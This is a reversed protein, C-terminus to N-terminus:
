RAVVRRSAAVGLLMGAVGLFAVPLSTVEAAFGILAPGTLIGSFGMTSVAAVALNAPMASQWGVSTYLVPVINSSGLGVLAFGLLALLGSPALVAIALGTAALCGGVAVIRVGGLMRVLRDGCLRGAAMAVAFATYGFGARAPTVGHLSTMLVASWDLMAGEALFVAFCLAGIVLVPGRPWALMPADMDGGESLLHRGFAILLGLVLASACTAAQLPSLGTWLLSTLGGAGVLGGISFMAHFGSMLARQSAREVLVAQLNAAVGFAGFGAGFAFLSVAMPPWSTVTALLPLSGAVLLGAGWIVRRCGFRATLAGSAPMTIISGFGLCLLLLGLEAADIRLRAKAFPVLPAWSATGLGCIFFAARTARLTRPLPRADVTMAEAGM